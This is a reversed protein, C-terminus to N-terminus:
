SELSWIRDNIRKSHEVKNVLANRSEFYLLVRGLQTILLERAQLRLLINILCIMSTWRDLSREILPVAAAAYAKPLPVERSAM